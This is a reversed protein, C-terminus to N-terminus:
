EGQRMRSLTSPAAETAAAMKHIIEVVVRTSGFEVVSASPSHTYIFAEARSARFRPVDAPALSGPRLQYLVNEPRVRGDSEIIPGFEREWAPRTGNGYVRVVFDGATGDTLTAGRMVIGISRPQSTENYRPNLLHQRGGGTDQYFYWCFAGDGEVVNARATITADGNEMDRELGVEIQGASIRGDELVMVEPAQREQAPPAPPNNWLGPACGSALVVAGAAFKGKLRDWVSRQAPNRRDEGAKKAGIDQKELKAVM